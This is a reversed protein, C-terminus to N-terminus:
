QAKRVRRSKPPSRHSGGSAALTNILTRLKPPIKGIARAIRQLEDSRPYRQERLLRQLREYRIHTRESLLVLPVGRLRALERLTKPAETESM